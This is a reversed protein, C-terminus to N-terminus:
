RLKVTFTTSTRTTQRTETVTSSISQLEYGFERIRKLFQGSASDEVERCDQFESPMVLHAVNDQIIIKPGSIMQNIWQAYKSQDLRHAAACCVWLLDTLKVIMRRQESTIAYQHWSSDPVIRPVNKAVGPNARLYNFLRSKDSGIVTVKGGLQRAKGLVRSWLESNSVGPRRPMTVVRKDGDVFPFGQAQLSLAAGVLQDLKTVCFPNGIFLCFALRKTLALVLSREKKGARKRIEDAVDSIQNKTKRIEIM